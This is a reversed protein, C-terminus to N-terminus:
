DQQPSPLFMTKPLKAKCLPLCFFPLTKNNQLHWFGDQIDGPVRRPGIVLLRLPFKRDVTMICKFNGDVDVRTRYLIFRDGLLLENETRAEWTFELVTEGSDTSRKCQVGHLERPANAGGDDESNSRGMLANQWILKTWVVAYMTFQPKRLSGKKLKWKLWPAVYTQFHTDSEPNEVLVCSSNSAEM